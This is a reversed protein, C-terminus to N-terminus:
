LDAGYSSRRERAEKEGGLGVCARMRKGERIPIGDIGEGYDNKECKIQIATKIQPWRLYIKSVNGASFYVLLIDYLYLLYLFLYLVSRGFDVM